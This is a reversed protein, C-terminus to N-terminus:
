AVVDVHHLVILFFLFLQYFLNLLYQLLFLAYLLLNIIAVDQIFKFVSFYFLQFLLRIM